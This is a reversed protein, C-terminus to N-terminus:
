ARSWLTFKGEHVGSKKRLAPEGQSTLLRNRSRHIVARSINQRSEAPRSPTWWAFPVYRRAARSFRQRLKVQQKHIASWFQSM